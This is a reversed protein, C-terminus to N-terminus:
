CENSQLVTQLLPPKKRKERSYQKKEKQELLAAKTPSVM